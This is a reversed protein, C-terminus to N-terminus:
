TPYDEGTISKYLDNLDIEEESIYDKSGILVSEIEDSYGREKSARAIKIGLTETELGSENVIVNPDSEQIIKKIAKYSESIINIDKYILEQADKFFEFFRVSKFDENFNIMLDLDEIYIRPYKKNIVELIDEKFNLKISNKITNYDDEFNFEGVKIFPVILM